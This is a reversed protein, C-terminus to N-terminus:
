SPGTDRGPHYPHGSWAPTNQKTLIFLMFNRVTFDDLTSQREEHDEIWRLFWGLREQYWQITRLSYNHARYYSSFLELLQSLPPQVVPRPAPRPRAKVTVM